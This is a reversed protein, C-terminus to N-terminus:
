LWPELRPSRVFSRCNWNYLQPGDGDGDTLRARATPPPVSCPPPLPAVMYLVLDFGSDASDASISSM